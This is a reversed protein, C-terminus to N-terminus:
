TSEETRTTSDPIRGEAESELEPDPESESEPEPEPESEPEAASPRMTAHTVLILGTSRGYHPRM